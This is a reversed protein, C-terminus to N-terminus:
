VQNEAQNLSSETEESCSVESSLKQAQPLQKTLVRLPAAEEAIVLDHIEPQRTPRFNSRQGGNQSKALCCGNLPLDPDILIALLPRTVHWFFALLWLLSQAM